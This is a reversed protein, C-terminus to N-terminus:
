FVTYMVKTLRQLCKNTTTYLNKDHVLDEVLGLEVVGFRLHESFDRHRDEGEPAALAHREVEGQLLRADDAFLLAICVCLVIFVDVFMLLCLCVLLYVVCLVIVVIAVSCLMIIFLRAGDAPTEDIDGEAVQGHRMYIYIYIYICM